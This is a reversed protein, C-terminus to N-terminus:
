VGYRDLQDPVNCSGAKIQQVVRDVFGKKLVGSQRLEDGVIQLFLKVKHSPVSHRNKSRLSQLARDVIAQDDPIMNEPM